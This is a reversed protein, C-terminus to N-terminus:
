CIIFVIRTVQQPNLKGTVLGVMDDDSITLTAGAKDNKPEGEYISGEGNKLDVALVIVFNKM